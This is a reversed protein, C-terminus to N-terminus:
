DKAVNVTVRHWSNNVLGRVNWIAAPSEPQTNYAEDTAKCILELRGGGAKTISDPLPLTV